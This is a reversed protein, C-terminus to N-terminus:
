VGLAIFSSEYATGTRQGRRNFKSGRPSCRLRLCPLSYAKAVSLEDCRLIVQVKIEIEEFGRETAFDEVDTLTGHNRSSDACDREQSVNMKCLNLDTAMRQIAAEKRRKGEEEAFM